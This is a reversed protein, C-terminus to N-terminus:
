MQQWQSNKKCKGYSKVKWFIKDVYKLPKLTSVYANSIILQQCKKNM